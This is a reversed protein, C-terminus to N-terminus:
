IFVSVLGAWVFAGFWHNLNFALLCEAPDRRRYLRWFRFVLIMAGILATQYWVAGPFFWIGLASLLLVAAAYCISVCLVDRGGFLIASSKAGARRDDERDCMAYITDYAFVWLWNAAAFGWAEPPPPAERVAAYAIPIGFSFAIGLVAQPAGVIRKAFPYIAAMALAAAAWLKAGYPLLLFLFFAVCLLFAALIAAEIRTIKGAALPRHKTRAVKSDLERDAIDNIACGFARMVFVGAVFICLWRWGPFGEAALWLGWLTPWLLLLAGAPKDLRVLRCYDGLRAM